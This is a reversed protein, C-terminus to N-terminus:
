SRTVRVAIRRKTTSTEPIKDERDKGTSAGEPTALWERSLSRLWGVQRDASVQSQM